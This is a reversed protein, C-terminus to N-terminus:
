ALHGLTLLGYFTYEPDAQDDSLSGRFGGDPTWLRSLFRRNADALAALKEDVDAQAAAPLRTEKIAHLATATSLLDTEPAGDFAFFGGDGDARDLLWRVASEPPTQGLHRLATLAAATSPTTPVAIVADNAFGGDDALMAWVTDALREPEPPAQGADQWASVAVFTAYVSSSAEGRLLGYGGDASRFAEVRERMARRAANGPSADTSMAAELWWARMLCGLHVLDLGDGLGFRELYERVRHRPVDANLGLLAQLAFVTYYLDSKGGRGKFGGDDTMQRQLFAVAAAPPDAEAIWRLMEEVITM